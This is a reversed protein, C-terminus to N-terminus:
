EFDGGYLEEDTTMAAISAKAQEESEGYWKVRYEWAQMLRDHVDQRDREREATEDILPSQDFVVSIHADPKISSDIYSHGIWLISKTLSHLFTEVKIFHKHASMILDQKDGSYQTATVPSGANFQYHKTGFGCKFSLYDLQAQICDTNDKVRLDPNHEQVLPKSNDGATQPIFHFLQQNVEDPVVANGMIDAIMDKALFVKKQGLWIDRNLNNYALDVGKLNDIADAFVACGMGNNNGIANVIAPKCVAFWPIDSGTHLVKPVDDPLEDERLIVSGTNDATFIHNEIVYKGKELRHIELYLKHVGKCCIDSCFAAETITGNDVTLPIISEADIYNLDIRTDASSILEGNIGASANKLRIIVAATGSWMMREMLDNAQEWFSNAGFVGGNDNDGTLFKESYDDDVKVFTKDNILIAAWDECIKKAMKMTYMDRTRSKQGNNLTVRHFPENFGQWWDRWSRIVTYYDKSISYGYTKNIFEIIYSNIQIM